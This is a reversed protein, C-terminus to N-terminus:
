GACELRTRVCGRDFGSIEIEIIIKIPLSMRDL